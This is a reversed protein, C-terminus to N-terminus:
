PPHIHNAPTHLALSPSVHRDSGLSRAATAQSEHSDRRHTSAPSELAPSADALAAGEFAPPLSGALSVCDDAVDLDSPMAPAITVVSRRHHQRHAAVTCGMHFGRLAATRVDRDDGANDFATAAEHWVTGGDANADDDDVAPAPALLARAANVLRQSVDEKAFAPAFGASGVQQVSKRLAAALRRTAPRTSAAGNGLLDDQPRHRSPFQPPPTTGAATAASGFAWASGAPVARGSAPPRPGSPPPGPVILREVDM